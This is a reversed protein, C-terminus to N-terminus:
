LLPTDHRDYRLISRYEGGGDQEWSRLRRHIKEAEEASSAAIAFRGNGLDEVIAEPFDTLDPVGPRVAFTVRGSPSLVEGVYGGLGDIKVIDGLALRMQLFPVCCIEATAADIRRVALEEDWPSQGPVLILTRVTADARDPWAPAPHVLTRGTAPRLPEDNRHRAWNWATVLVIVIGAFGVPQYWYRWAAGSVLGPGAAVTPRAPDIWLTVQEGAGPPLGWGIDLLETRYLRAHFVYEVRLMRFHRGHSGDVYADVTTHAARIDDARQHLSLLGLAGAGFLAIGALLRWLTGM